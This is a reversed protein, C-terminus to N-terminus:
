QRPSIKPKSKRAATLIWENSILSGGCFFRDDVFMAVQRKGSTM